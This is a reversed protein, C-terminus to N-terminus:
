KSGKKKVKLKCSKCLFVIHHRATTKYLHRICFLRKCKTCKDGENYDFGIGCEDCISPVTKTSEINQNFPTIKDTNSGHPEFFSAPHEGKM